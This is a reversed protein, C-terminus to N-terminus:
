LLDMGLAENQGPDFLRKNTGQCDTQHQGKSQGRNETLTCLCFSLLFLFLVLVRDFLGYKDQPVAWHKMGAGCRCFDLTSVEHRARTVLSARAAVAGAVKVM